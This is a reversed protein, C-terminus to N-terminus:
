QDMKKFSVVCRLCQQATENCKTCEGPELDIINFLRFHYFDKYTENIKQLLDRLENVMQVGLADLQRPAPLVQEATVEEQVVVVEENEQM